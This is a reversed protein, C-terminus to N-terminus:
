SSLELSTCAGTIRGRRCLDTFTVPLAALASPVPFLNASKFHSGISVIIMGKYRCRNSDGIALEHLPLLVHPRGLNRLLISVLLSGPEYKPYFLPHPLDSCSPHRQTIRVETVLQMSIRESAPLCRLLIGRIRVYSSFNPIIVLMAEVCVHSPSPALSTRVM